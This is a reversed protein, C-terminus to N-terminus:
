AQAFARLFHVDQAIYHRFAEIKLNGSALCHVFPTYMALVSERRFKIWFRKALGLESDVAVSKASPPPPIAMSIRPTNFRSFLLRTSLYLPTKIPIKPSFLFRM